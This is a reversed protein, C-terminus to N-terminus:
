SISGPLFFVTFFFIGSNLPNPNLLWVSALMPIDDDTGKMDFGFNTQSTYITNVEGGAYAFKMQLPLDMPKDLLSRLNKAAKGM